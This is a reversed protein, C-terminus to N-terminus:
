RMQRAMRSSEGFNLVYVEDCVQGVLAMDHEVLLVALGAAKARLIQEGVAATELANMGAAPEDLLLLKPNRPWRVRWKWAGSTATPCATPSAGRSQRGLCFRSLLALGREEM